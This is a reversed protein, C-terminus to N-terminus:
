VDARGIKISQTLLKERTVPAGVVLAGTRIGVSAADSMHDVHGHGILIVNVRKIDAAKFGLPPFISGRDFYADLLLVDGKYAIEYNSFGTWRVVLTNPDRPFAGGTSVLVPNECGPDSTQATFASAFMLVGVAATLVRANMRGERGHNIQQSRFPRSCKIKGVSM